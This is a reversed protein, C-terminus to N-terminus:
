FGRPLANQYFMFKQNLTLTYRKHPQIKQLDEALTKVVKKPPATKAATLKTVLVQEYLMEISNSYHGFIQSIPM